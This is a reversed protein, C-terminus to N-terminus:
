HGYGEQVRRQRRETEAPRWEEQQEEKAEAGVGLGKAVKPWLCLRCPHAAIARHPTRLLSLDQDSLPETKKKTVARSEMIM